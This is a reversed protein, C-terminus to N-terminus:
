VASLFLGRSLTQHLLTKPTVVPLLSERVRANRNVDTQRRGDRSRRQTRRAPNAAFAGLSRSAAARPSPHSPLAAQNPVRPAM